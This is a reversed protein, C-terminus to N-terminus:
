YHHEHRGYFSTHTATQSTISYGNDLMCSIMRCELSIPIEQTDSLPIGLNALARFVKDKGLRESSIHDQILKPGQRGGREPHFMGGSIVLQQSTERKEMGSEDAEM